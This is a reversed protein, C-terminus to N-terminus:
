FSLWLKKHREELQNRHILGYGNKEKVFIYEDYNEGVMHVKLMQALQPSSVNYDKLREALSSAPFIEGPKESVVKM